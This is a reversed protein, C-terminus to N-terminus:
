VTDMYVQSNAGSHLQWRKLQQRGNIILFRTVAFAIMGESDHIKMSSSHRRLSPNLKIPTDYLKPLNCSTIRHGGIM